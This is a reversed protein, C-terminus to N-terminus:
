KNFIPCKEFPILRAKYIVNIDKIKRIYPITNPKICLFTNVSMIKINQASTQTRRIQLFM